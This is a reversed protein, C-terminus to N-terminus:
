IKMKIPQMKDYRYISDFGIKNLMSKMDDFKYMLTGTGHTDSGLTIIEGGLKKYLQLLKLDPFQIGVDQRLGSTNIEIGKNNSILIKFIETYKDSYEDIDLNKIGVNYRKLLDLHGIVSFDKYNKLVYIIEDLYENLVEHPTKIFLIDSFYIDHRKHTHFSGIVFDFKNNKVIESCENLIHKQLGIELGIKVDIKDAYKEKIRNLESFYDNVDFEFKEPLDLCDYDIHDTFCIEKLGSKIADNVIIEAEVSCDGSFNSHVHYDM